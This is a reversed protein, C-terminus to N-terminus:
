LKKPLIVLSSYFLIFSDSEMSFTKHALVTNAQLGIQPRTIYTPGLVLIDSFELSGCDLIPLNSLSTSLKALNNNKNITNRVETTVVNLWGIKLRLPIETINMLYKTRKLLM